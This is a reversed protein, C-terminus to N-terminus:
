LGGLADQSRAYLLSGVFVSNQFCSYTRVIHLGHTKVPQRTKWGDLVEAVDAVAGNCALSVEVAVHALVGAFPVHIVASQLSTTVSRYNDKPEEKAFVGATGM